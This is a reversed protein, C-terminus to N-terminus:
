LAGRLARFQAEDIKDLNYANTIPDVKAVADPDRLYDKYERGPAAKKTKLQGLETVAQETTIKGGVLRDVTDRITM